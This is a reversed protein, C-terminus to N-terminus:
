KGITFRVGMNMNFDLKREKFVHDISSCDDFYYRCGPEAYISVAYLKPQVAGGSQSRFVDTSSALHYHISGGTTGQRGHYLKKEDQWLRLESLVDSSLYVEFGRWSAARYSVGVPVGVYHLKQNDEVYNSTSGERIDSAVFAYSLGSEVSWRNNLKCAISLGTRLPAHHSVKRETEAGRNLYMIGLLPSDKWEADDIATCAGVYDGHYM